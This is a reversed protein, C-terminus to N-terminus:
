GNLNDMSPINVQKAYPENKLRVEASTGDSSIDIGVVDGAEIQLLLQSYSLKNNDNDLISTLVVVFIIGIILWMALTKIGSKM